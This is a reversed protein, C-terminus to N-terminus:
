LEADCAVFGNPQFNISADSLGHAGKSGTVSVGTLSPTTSFTFGTQFTGALSIIGYDTGPTGILTTAPVARKTVKFQTEGGYITNAQIMYARFTQPGAGLKEYYRQCLRLEIGIPRRDFITVAGGEELQVETISVTKGAVLLGIPLQIEVQLGNDINTYASIDVSYSITTWAGAPCSQLAQTLRNTVTTFDDVAAPTGFLISPTFAAGTGNYIKASFTVARKVSPIAAAEIRQGALVTTVSAAGDLQLSYRALAGAPVSASLQQTIAAGAPNVYWRDALFTRAGAPCSTSGSGRQWVDFGGNILANKGPTTTVVPPSDIDVWLVTASKAIGIAVGDAPASVTLAGPTTADLYYRAGPTLGSFLPCEGYIYVKGNTLDAIGVARNNATGDAIAEDFVGNVSDWRVVEGTAVSAEFTAANIVVAKQAGTVMAQIAQRLQTRDTDSAVLGSGEIVALLEEQVNNYWEYGPVTALPGGQPNPAAFYGATGGAPPAPLAVAATSRKVRQM